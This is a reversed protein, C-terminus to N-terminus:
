GTRDRLGGNWNILILGSGAGIAISGCLWGPKTTHAESEHATWFLVTSM